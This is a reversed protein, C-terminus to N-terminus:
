EDEAAAPQARHGKLPTFRPSLDDLMFSNPTKVGSLERLAGQVKELPKFIERSTKERAVNTGM